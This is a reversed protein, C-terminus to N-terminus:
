PGGDDPVSVTAAPQLRDVREPTVVNLGAELRREGVVGVVGGLMASLNPASDPRLYGLTRPTGRGVSVIRFLRPLREGDYVASTSLRGVLAYQGSQEYREIERGIDALREELEQWREDLTRKRDRVERRLALFERRVELRRQIREDDTAALAQDISEIVEDFPAEEPPAARADEFAAEVAELHRVSGPAPPGEEREEERSSQDIVMPDTSEGEVDSDPAEQGETEGLAPEASEAPTAPRSPERPPTGPRRQAEPLAARATRLEDDTPERLDAQRVWGVASAPARVLFAGEEGSAGPRLLPITTGVPLPSDLVPKWSGRLGYNLNPAKFHTPAVLRVTRGSEVPEAADAPVYAGVDAPYAVGVWGERTTEVVRLTQGPTLRAVPYYYSKPGSRLLTDPGAVVRFRAEGPGASRDSPQLAHVLGSSLLLLGVAALGGGVRASFRRITSM